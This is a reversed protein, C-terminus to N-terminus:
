RVKEEQKRVPECGGPVSPIKWELFGIWLLARKMVLVFGYFIMNSGGVSVFVFVCMLLMYPWFPVYQGDHFGGNRLIDQSVSIVWPMVVFCMLTVLGGFLILFYVLGYLVSVWRKKSVVWLYHSKKSDKKATPEWSTDGIWIFGRVCLVLIGIFVFSDIFM